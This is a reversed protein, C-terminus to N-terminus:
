VVSKRDGAGAFARDPIVVANQAGIWLLVLDREVTLRTIAPWTWTVESLKGRISVGTEDLTVTKADFAHPTAALAGAIARRRILSAAVALAIIGGFFALLAVLGALEISKPNGTEIDAFARAAFAVPIAAAFAGVYILFNPWNSQRKGIIAFYRAYDDATLQVQISQIESPM